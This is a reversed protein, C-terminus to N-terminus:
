LSNRLTQVEALLSGVTLYLLQQGYALAQVYKVRLRNSARSDPPPFFFEVLFSVDTYHDSVFARFTAQSRQLEFYAEVGHLLKEAVQRSEDFTLSHSFTTHFGQPAKSITAKIHIGPPNSNPEIDMEVLDYINGGTM